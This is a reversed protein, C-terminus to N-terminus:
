IVEAHRTSSLVWGIFFVKPTVEDVYSYIPGVGEWWLSYYNLLFRPLPFQYPRGGLRVVSLRALSQLSPPGM